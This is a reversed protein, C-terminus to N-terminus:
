AFSRVASADKKKGAINSDILFLFLFYNPHERVIVNLELAFKESKGKFYTKAAHVSLALISEEDHTQYGVPCAINEIPVRLM